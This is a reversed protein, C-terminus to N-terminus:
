PTTPAGTAVAQNHGLNLDHHDKAPPSTGKDKPSWWTPPWIPHFPFPLPFPFIFQQAGYLKDDDKAPPQQLDERGAAEIGNLFAMALLALVLLTTSSKTMNNRVRLM